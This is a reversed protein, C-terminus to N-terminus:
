RRGTLAGHPFNRRVWSRWAQLDTAPDPEDEEVQARKKERSADTNMRARLKHVAKYLRAHNDHMVVNDAAQNSVAQELRRLRAFDSRRLAYSAMLLAVLSMGLAFFSLFALYEM